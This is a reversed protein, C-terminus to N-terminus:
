ANDQEKIIMGVTVFSGMVVVTDNKEAKELAYHYAKPADDFTSCCAPDIGAQLAAKALDEATAGRPQNLTAFFWHDAVAQLLSLIGVQDKDQLIGCVIFVRGEQAFAREKIFQALVQASDVNHAVDLVVRVAGEQVMLRAPNHATQAVQQVITDSLEYWQSFIYLVSAFHGLQHAGHMYKLLSTVFLHDKFRIELSNEKKDVTFDKQYCALTKAMEKAKEFLQVEPNADAFVIMQGKRMIGAKEKAILEVSSGLYDQHDLGIKTFLAVDADIINTADLRGGLGVELVVVDLHARSFLYFAALASWEFYTLSIDGRAKDIAVFAACLSQADINRENLRIRECYDVLHPSSFSGVQLGLAHSTAEVFRVCSGKGNTGAVTIIHKGLRPAGMKQWVAGIRELGLDWAKPHLTEQWALWDDLQWNQREIATNPM